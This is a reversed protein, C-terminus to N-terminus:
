NKGRTLEEIIEDYTPKGVFTCPGVRLKASYPKAKRLFADKDDVLGLSKLASAVEQLTAHQWVYFTTSDPAKTEEPTASGAQAGDAKGSDSRGGDSANPATAEGNASPSASAKAAEEKAQSVAADLQEQTYIKADGDMQSVLKYGQAEAEKSLQEQSLPANPLVSSGANQAATMLQLVAAGLAIGLGFGILWGRRKAM